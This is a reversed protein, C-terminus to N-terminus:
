NENFFIFLSLILRAWSVTENSNSPVTMNGPLYELSRNTSFIAQQQESDIAPLTISVLAFRNNPEEFFALNLGIIILYSFIVGILLFSRTSSIWKRSVFLLLASVFTLIFLGVFLNLMGEGVVTNDLFDSFM